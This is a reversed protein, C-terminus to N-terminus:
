VEKQGTLDNYYDEFDDILKLIKAKDYMDHAKWFSLIEWLEGEKRDIFMSCLRGNDMASDEAVYGICAFDNSLRDCDGCTLEQKPPLYKCDNDPKTIEWSATRQCLQMNDGDMFYKCDKCKLSM